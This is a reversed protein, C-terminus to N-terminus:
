SIFQILTTGIGLQEMKSRSGSTIKIRNLRLPNAKENKRTIIAWFLSIKWFCGPKTTSETKGLTRSPILPFCYDSPLLNWSRTNIQVFRKTLTM